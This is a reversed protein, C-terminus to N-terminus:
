QRKKDQVPHGNETGNGNRHATGNGNKALTTKRVGVDEDYESSDSESERIDEVGDAGSSASRLAIKVILYTWLLHLLLLTLLMAVFVRPVVPRQWLNEWRYDAQILEPAKVLVSHIVWFPYYILRTAIWALFFAVFTLNLPLKWGAYRFLKGLEILVDASDHIFVILAGMRVFNVTYSLSLLLITVAHHIMM